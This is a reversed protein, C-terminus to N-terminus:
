NGETEKVLNVTSEKGKWVGMLVKPWCNSRRTRTFNGKPKFDAVTEALNQPCTHFKSSKKVVHPVVSSERWSTRGAGKTEM